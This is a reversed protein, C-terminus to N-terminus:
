ARYGVEGLAPKSPLSVIGATVVAAGEVAHIMSGLTDVYIVQLASDGAVLGWTAVVLYFAGVVLAYLRSAAPRACV